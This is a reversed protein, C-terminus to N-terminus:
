IGKGTIVTKVTHFMIKIDLALSINELYIMDYGLREIMQDVSSAYGYKVMGWSTLGPRVQHVLTYHPAREIIQSEYYEREPRPGVLSMDGILVNWFQPLEDLRYKRLFHGLRTIRNDYDTSLAPGGAEADVVMTRFKYITFERRHMGIRKQKFIVPGRSDRKVAVAIGVLVPSLLAMALTSLIIDSIRKINRQSESINVSTIDTLPEGTINNIKLRTLLNGACWAPLMVPIELGYLNRLMELVRTNDDPRVALVIRDIHFDVCVEKVSEYDIVRIEDKRYNKKEIDNVAPLAVTTVKMGMNKRYNRLRSVTNAVDKNDGVVLVNLWYRGRAVRRQIIYTILLRETLELFLFISWLMILLIYNSYRDPIIDDIIAVFYVIVTGIVVSLCTDGIVELRSKSFTQNYIGSLWFILMMLLPVLIQGAIVIDFQLFEGFSFDERLEDNTVYRVINFLFWAVSSTLFDAVIFTLRNHNENNM